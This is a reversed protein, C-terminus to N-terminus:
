AFAAQKMMHCSCYGRIVPETAHHQGQVTAAVHMAISLMPQQEIVGARLNQCSRMWDSTLPHFRDKSCLTLAFSNPWIALSSSKLLLMRRTCTGQQM